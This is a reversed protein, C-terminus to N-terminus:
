KLSELFALLDAAQQATLDRLLQDPMLSQGAVKVSEVEDNSLRIEQDKADRITWAGDTREVVVGTVIRGDATEVVQTQYKPDILKSPALLSELLQAKSYKKAIQSLDPGVRGGMGAVQHCTKCQIGAANFFLDRGRAADGTMHLLSDIDPSPGLRQIRKSAPVFQEFLDRVQADSRAYAMQVIQERTTAAHPYNTLARQLRFASSTRSLLQDILQRRKDDL